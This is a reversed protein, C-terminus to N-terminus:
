TILDIAILLLIFGSFGIQSKRKESVSLQIIQRAHAYVVLLMSVFVMIYRSRPHIGSFLIVILFLIIFYNFQKYHKIIKLFYPFILALIFWVFWSNLRYFINTFFEASGWPYFVFKWPVPSMFVTIFGNFFSNLILGPNLL